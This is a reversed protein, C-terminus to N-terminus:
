IEALDKLLLDAFEASIKKGRQASVEHALANTNGSKVKAKLSNLIGHNTIEGQDFGYQLLEDLHAVDMKVTLTFDKESTNGSNDVATVHLTHDGVSLSLPEVVVPNDVEVGDLTISVSAVGSDEDTAVITQNFGEYQYFTTQALDEIVPATTDVSEFDSLSLPKLQYTGKFISSIGSINASDGNQLTELLQNLAVGTRSDVRVRTKSGDASVADFEFTGGATDPLNEVKVNELKVYQGQNSADVASVTKAAPVESTGLKDVKILDSLELEGNYLSTTGTLKVKDGKHYDSESQFVYIGGTDDQLYFGEGGFAGPESTIVGEVTVLNKEGAARAADITMLDPIKPGQQDPLPESDVNGFTVSETLANKSGVKLRLNAAGETGKVVTVDVDKFAKGNKDATVSFESSYGPSKPYTGDAGKFYGVQNGGDLYLGLKLGSVTENPQLNDLVVRIQFEQANPLVSQHVFSYEPLTATKNSGYSGAAFTSPDYWKYGAQPASWPEAQPETSKEPQEFDLLKTPEDLTLGPVQDFGTYDEKTSLWNVLNVLLKGDNQEKFGDYTTKKTGGEERLYKPSADEVPSSDGIFAAKGKGVKSVAVFAGEAKGGGSYVGQDVANGWAENTQPLYVIGKAKTPDTIALTSGAHMAVTNVGETIGFAQDPAVIQNATIDGLANYRFRIGFYDSLWDSSEVGQMAASSAEETTMGKAPNDWAGRRYGNFVESADWRNKNRDANYHDGIFFISGGQKVYDLMAQQESTKYPINAEGIVFADYQQLDNLTIPTSKRLEKVYYGTGALANGFDSFGGNIVWDAAGATQGHTNDFLVKKGNAVSPTIYPAPDAATEAHAPNYHAMTSFPALLSAAFVLKSFKNFFKKKGM